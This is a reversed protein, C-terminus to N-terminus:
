RDRKLPNQVNEQVVGSAVMLALIPSKDRNVAEKLTDIKIDDNHRVLHYIKELSDKDYISPYKRDKGTMCIVEGEMWSNYEKKDRVSFCPKGSNVFQVLAEYFATFNTFNHNLVRRM